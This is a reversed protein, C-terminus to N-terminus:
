GSSGRPTALSPLWPPAPEGDDEGAAAAAVGWGSRKAQARRATIGGKYQVADRNCRTARQTAPPPYRAPPLLWRRAPEGDDEGTEEGTVRTSRGGRTILRTENTCRARCLSAV